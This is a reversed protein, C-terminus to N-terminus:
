VFRRGEREPRAHLNLANTTRWLACRQRNGHRCRQSNDTSLLGHSVRAYEFTRRRTMKREHEYQAEDTDFRAYDIVTPGQMRELLAQREDIVPVRAYLIGSVVTLVVGVFQVIDAGMGSSEARLGFLGFYATCQEIRVTACQLSLVREQAISVRWSLLFACGDDAFFWAVVIQVSSRLANGVGMGLRTMLPVTLMNGSHMLMDSFLVNFRACWLVVFLGGCRAASATAAPRAARAVGSRLWRDGHMAAVTGCHRGAQEHAFLATDRHSRVM